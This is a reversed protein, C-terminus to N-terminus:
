AGSYNMRRYRPLLHPYHTKLVRALVPWAARRRAMRGQVVFKAGARRAAYALLALERRDDNIGPLVPMCFLGVPVGKRALERVADLRARPTAARPELKRILTADLSILSMHVTLSSKEAIRSLLDADDTVIPSKTTLSLTLGSFASLKELIRRTLRYRREAPQYPDTVTGIAIEEGEFHCAKLDRVVRREAGLKVFIEQEFRYPDDQGLYSHTYRAYCYACGIECGRYPNVTWGFPLGKKQAGPSRGIIQRCTAEVYNVRPGHASLTEGVPISGGEPRRPLGELLPLSNVFM